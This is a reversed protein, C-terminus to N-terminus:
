YWHHSQWFRKANVWSGYRSTVYKQAVKEQNAASRNGHLYALSLQYKGYCVGNRATYSGGSERKVIWARAATESKSLTPVISKPTLYKHWIWGHAGNTKNRVYFYLYLNNGKKVHAKKSVVWTSNKSYNKLAHTAKSFKFTKKGTMNFNYTAGKNSKKVYNAHKVSYTKVISKKTAASANTNTSAFVAFVALATLVYKSIKTM